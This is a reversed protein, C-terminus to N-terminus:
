KKSAKPATSPTTEFQFGFEFFPFGLFRMGLRFLYTYANSICPPTTKTITTKKTVTPKKAKEKIAVVIKKQVAKAAPKEVAKKPAISKAPAAIKPVIITPKTTFPISPATIKKKGFSIQVGFAIVQKAGFAYNAMININKALRARLAVEAFLKTKTESTMEWKDSFNVNTQGQNYFYRSEGTLTNKSERGGVGLTFTFDKFVQFNGFIKIETSQAKVSDGKVFFEMEAGPWKNSINQFVLDFKSKPSSSYFAEFGMAWKKGKLATIKTGVFWYPKYNGDSQVMDGICNQEDMVGWLWSRTWYNPYATFELKDVGVGAYLDVREKLFIYDAQLFFGQTIKTNKSEKMTLDYRYIDGDFYNLFTVPKNQLAERQTKVNFSFNLSDSAVTVMSFLFVFLCVITIKKM